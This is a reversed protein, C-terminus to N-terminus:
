SQILQIVMDTHKPQLLQHGAPIVQLTCFSEIGDRFKEGRKHLIIRDYKGYALQVPVRYQLIIKKIFALDPKITRFCTWRHYLHMRGPKDHIFHRVFKFVSQNILGLRNIIRLLLFFWYPHKMTYLFLKNGIYTQTSLWYWFNVRLGDPALLVVKEISAPIAQLLALALRGGMSFGLLTISAAGPASASRIADIIMLLDPITCDSGENWKTKGHFPLDVAIMCYDAPLRPELFRFSHETEGYGHLCLLLKNGTGSFSYHIQSSRFPIFASQM